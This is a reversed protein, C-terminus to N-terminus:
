LTYFFEQRGWLPLHGLLALDSPTGNTEKSFQLNCFM